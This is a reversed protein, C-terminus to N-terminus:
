AVKELEVKKDKVENDGTFDFEIQSRKGDVYRFAEASIRNVIDQVDEEFGLKDSEYCIRPTSVACYADNFGKFKASIVAGLLQESGGISVGIIQVRDSVPILVKEKHANQVKDLKKVGLVDMAVKTAVATIGMNQLVYPKLESVLNDLDPHRQGECAATHTITEIGAASERKEIYEITLTGDDKLKLKSLTRDM